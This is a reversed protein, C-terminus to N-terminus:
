SPPNAALKEVRRTLSEKWSESLGTQEALRQAAEANSKNHHMTMNAEAVSLSQAQRDELSLSDGAQVEGPEVVRFYWGTRGNKLVQAPLDQIRWRRALKWCPQRPQTIQILATGARFIDGIYVDEEALGQTTFNEGFGGFPLTLNLTREWYPYHEAPYVCIAKDPGGHVRLDAQADGELQTKHVRLRDHVPSKWIGSTWPKDMANTAGENGHSQPTGIQISKIIM